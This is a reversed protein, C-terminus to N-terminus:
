KKRGVNRLFTFDGSTNITDIGTLERAHVAVNKMTWLSIYPLDDAAKRQIKAYLV